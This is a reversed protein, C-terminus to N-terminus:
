IPIEHWRDSLLRPAQAGLEDKVLLLRCSRAM